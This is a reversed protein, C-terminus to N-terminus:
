KKAKESKQKKAQCMYNTQTIIKNKAGLCNNKIFSYRFNRETKGSLVQLTKKPDFM